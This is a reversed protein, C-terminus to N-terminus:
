IGKEGRPHASTVAGRLENIRNKAFAELVIKSERGEDDFFAITRRLESIRGNREAENVIDILAKTAEDYSMPTWTPDLPKVIGGDAWMQFRTLVQGIREEM